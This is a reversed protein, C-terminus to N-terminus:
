GYLKHGRNWAARSATGPEDRRRLFTSKRCLVIDAAIGLGHKAEFGVRPSLREAPTDDAVVVLLDWDSDPRARGEARSGFLWIELPALREILRDILAAPPPTCRATTSGIPM